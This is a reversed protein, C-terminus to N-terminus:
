PILNKNIAENYVLSSLIDIEEEVSPVRFSELSIWQLMREENIKLEEISSSYVQDFAALSSLIKSRFNEPNVYFTNESHTYDM